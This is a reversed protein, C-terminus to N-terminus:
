KLLEKLGPVLTVLIRDSHVSVEAKATMGDQYTYYRDNAKFTPTKLLAHVVVISGAVALGDTSERDTYRSIEHAGVIEVGVRDIRIIESADSYGDVKMRLPMGARLQPAYSGPLFSILEFGDGEDIISAVRDGTSVQQGSRVRVDSVIGNNPALSQGRFRGIPTMGTDEFEVLIDGRSVRDGVAVNVSRILGPASATVNLRTRARIVATGNAFEDIRASSLYTIALALMAVLFWHTKRLWPPSSRLVEGEQDWKKVHHELAEERFINSDGRLGRARDFLMANFKTQFLIHNLTVAACSTLIGLIKEEESSFPIRSVGRAVTVVGLVESEAGRIPEAIFHYDERGGPNDISSDYRADGKTNELHIREGTRAVFGALGSAASEIRPEGTSQDVSSLVEDAQNYILCQTSDANLLTRAAETLLGTLNPLDTQFSIRICFALLGDDSSVNEMLSEKVGQSRSRFRNVAARVIANLQVNSIGGSTLYFLQDADIFEQYLDPKSGACLVVANMLRGSFETSIRLLVDRGEYPTLSPGLVLVAVHGRDFHRFLASASPVELIKFGNEIRESSGYNLGFAIVFPEDSAIEDFGDHSTLSEM